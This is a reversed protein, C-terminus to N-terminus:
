NESAVLMLRQTKCFRALVRCPWQLFLTGFASLSSTNLPGKTPMTLGRGVKLWLPLVTGQMVASLRGSLVDSITVIVGLNECDPLTGWHPVVM